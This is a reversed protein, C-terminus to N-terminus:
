SQVSQILSSAEVLDSVIADADLDRVDKGGTYGYAVLVVPCGAARGARSDNDSDGVVLLRDVPIGFRGAVHLLPGPDPKRSSLSDGGVVLELYRRVGTAELLPESFAIAKNTVCALRLGAARMRELGELVGPFPQITLTFTDQYHREFLPLARDFLARDPEGDRQGTAGTEEESGRPGPDFRDPLLRALQALTIAVVGEQVIAASLLCATEAPSLREDDRRLGAGAVLDTLRADLREPYLSDHWPDDRYARTQESSDVVWRVLEAAHTRPMASM